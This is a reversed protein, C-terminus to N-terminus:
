KKATSFQVTDRDPTKDVANPNVKYQKEVQAQNVRPELDYSKVAVNNEVAM